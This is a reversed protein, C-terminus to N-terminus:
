RVLANYCLFGAQLVINSYIGAAADDLAIGLWGPLREVRRVPFPKKIDFLRFLVFGAAVIALPYKTPILFVSIFMGLAEDIVMRQPDASNFRRQAWKATFVNGLLTFIVAAGLIIWCGPAPFFYLIALSIVAALAASATGPAAPVYGTYFFTAIAEKLRNM